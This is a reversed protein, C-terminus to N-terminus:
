VIKDRGAASLRPGDDLLPVRLVMKKIIFKIIVFVVYFYFYLSLFGFYFSIAFLCFYVMCNIINTLSYFVNSVIKLM